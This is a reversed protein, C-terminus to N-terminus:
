IMVTGGDVHLAQGTINRAEESALFVAAYGIDEPTQERQLPVLAKVRSEFIERASMGALSPNMKGIIPALREWFSTYLFGPCIANVNINYKALDKAMIQTFTVVGAKAVSYPPNTQSAFRGAVSSLNIIKGYQREIMHPVIAKCVLFVSKVNVAFAVDWDEEENNLFPMGLRDGMMGANNVLIDIRGFTDLTKKVMDEVEQKKTVDVKLALSKRGLSQVEGAVKSASDLNLDPIVVDAGERAMCLVIGRGIGMGGGTVLAVKNELRM